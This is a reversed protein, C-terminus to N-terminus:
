RYISMMLSAQESFSYAKKRNVPLEFAPLLAPRGLSSSDTVPCKSTIVKCM